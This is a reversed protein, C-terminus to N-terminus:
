AYHKALYETVTAGIRAAVKAPVDAREMALAYSSQIDGFIEWLVAHMDIDALGRCGADFDNM